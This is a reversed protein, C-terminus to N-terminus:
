TPHPFFWLFLFISIAVCLGSLARLKGRPNIFLGVLGALVLPIMALFVLGSLSGALLAVIAEYTTIEADIPRYLLVGVGVFHAVVLSLILVQIVFAIYRLSKTLM